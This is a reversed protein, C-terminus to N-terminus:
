DNVDLAQLKNAIQQRLYFNETVKKLKEQFNIQSEKIEKVNINRIPLPFVPYRWNQLKKWISFRKRDIEQGDLTTCVFLVALYFLNLKKIILKLFNCKCSITPFYVDRYLIINGM